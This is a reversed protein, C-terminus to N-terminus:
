FSVLKKKMDSSILMEPFAQKLDRQWSKRLKRLRKVEASRRKQAIGATAFGVVGAVNKLEAACGM